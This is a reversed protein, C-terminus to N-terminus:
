FITLPLPRLRFPPQLIIIIIVFVFGKFIFITIYIYIYIHTHTHTHIIPPFLPILWSQWAANHSHSYSYCLVIVYGNQKLIKYCLKLTMLCALCPVLFLYFRSIRSLKWFPSGIVIRFFFFNIPCFFFLIIFFLYRNIYISNSAM